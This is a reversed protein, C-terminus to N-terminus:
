TGSHPLPNFSHLQHHHHPGHPNLKTSGAWGALGLPPFFFPTPRSQFLTELPPAVPATGGQCPKFHSKKEPVPRASGIVIQRSRTGGSSTDNLAVGLASEKVGVCIRGLPGYGGADPASMPLPPYDFVIISLPLSFDRLRHNERCMRICLLDCM